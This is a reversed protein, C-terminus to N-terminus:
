NNKGNIVGIQEPEERGIMEECVYDGKLVFADKKHIINETRNRVFGAIMQTRLYYDSFSRLQNFAGNQAQESEAIDWLTYVDVCLAVPLRFGGPLSIYYEEYMRGCTAPLIGSDKWLNIRKKRFLISIVHKQEKQRTRLLHTDPTIATLERNTQAIIEGEARVARICFDTNVYGSVLLQGKQVTQGERFMATGREVTGSLIYGDQAAIIRTVQNQDTGQEQWGRERISITAVCGSTNVGVWQLQPIDSLIGNKIQENRIERRSAGRHVGYKEAAELILRDPINTNGEVSIFLIRGPLYASVLFIFLLGAM